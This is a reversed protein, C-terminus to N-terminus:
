SDPYKVEFFQHQDLLTFQCLLKGALLQQGKFWKEDVWFQKVSFSLLFVGIGPNIVQDRM